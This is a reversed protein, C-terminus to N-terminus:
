HRSTDATLLAKYSLETLIKHLGVSRNSMKNGTFDPAQRNETGTGFFFFESLMSLVACYMRM